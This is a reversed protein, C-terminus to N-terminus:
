WYWSSKPCMPVAVTREVGEVVATTELSNMRKRKRFRLSAGAFIIRPLDALPLAREADEQQVLAERQFPM